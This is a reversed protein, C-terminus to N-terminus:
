INISKVRFDLGLIDSLLRLYFSGSYKRRVQVKYYKRWQHYELYKEPNGILYKLYEALHKPSEFDKVDIFSKPPLM